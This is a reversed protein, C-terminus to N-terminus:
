LQATDNVQQLAPLKNADEKLKKIDSVLKM